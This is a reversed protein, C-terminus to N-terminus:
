IRLGGFAHQILSAASTQDDAAARQRVRPHKVFNTGSQISTRWWGGGRQLFPHRKHRTMKEPRDGQTALDDGANLETLHDIPVSAGKTRARSETQFHFLHATRRLIM